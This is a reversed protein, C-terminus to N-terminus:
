TRPTRTNKISEALEKIGWVIIEFDVYCVRQCIGKGLTEEGLVTSGRGCPMESNTKLPLIETTDHGVEEAPL